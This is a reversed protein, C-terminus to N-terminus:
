AVAYTPSALSNAFDNEIARLATPLLAVDDPMCIGRVPVGRIVRSLIGFEDARQLPTLPGSMYTNAVLSVMRDRGTIPAIAPERLEPDRRRLIFIAGLPRARTCYSYGPATLDLIRKEITPSVQPLLNEDGWFQRVIAHNLRVRPLGHEVFFAHGRDDLVILDDTIIEAGQRAFAAALTSKGAGCTGLFAVARDQMVVSCGHLCAYGWQRCLFGLVNGFFYAQADAATRPHTWQAEVKGHESDVAFTLSQGFAIRFLGPALSVVELKLLEARTPDGGSALFDDALGSRWHAIGHRRQRAASGPLSTRVSWSGQQSGLCVLVRMGFANVVHSRGSDVACEASASEIQM